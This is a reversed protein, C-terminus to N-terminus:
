PHSARVTDTQDALVITSITSSTDSWVLRLRHSGVSVNKVV